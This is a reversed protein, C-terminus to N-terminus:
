IQDRSLIKTENLKLKSILKMCTFFFKYYKLPAVIASSTSGHQKVANRIAHKSIKSFIPMFIDFIGGFHRRILDM